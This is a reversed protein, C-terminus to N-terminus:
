EPHIRDMFSEWPNTECGYGDRYMPYVEEPVYIQVQPAGFDVPVATDWGVAMTNGARDYVMGCRDNFSAAAYVGQAALDDGSTLIDCRQQLYPVYNGILASQKERSVELLLGPDSEACKWFAEAGFYASMTESTPEVALVVLDGAGLDDESLDLMASTGVAAYLGFPCVTYDYGQQALLEELLAGDLGFAVNSGGLVIIKPNEATELRSHMRSLVAYYTNGYFEPLMMGATLLSVPVVLLLLLAILFKTRKKM